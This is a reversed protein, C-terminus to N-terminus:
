ATRRKATRPASLVTHIKRWEFHWAEKKSGCRKGAPPVCPRGLKESTAPDQAWYPNHFGYTPANLFLWKYQETSFNGVGLDVAAGWGHMSTGPPAALNPKRQKIKVQASYTRLGGGSPALKTKFHAHFAAAMNNFDPIADKLLTVKITSHAGDAKAVISGPPSGNLFVVDTGYKGNYTIEKRGRGIGDGVVGGFDFAMASDICSQNTLTQENFYQDPKTITSVFRGIELNYGFQNRDLEVLVVEGVAPLVEGAPITYDQPSIFLTHMSILKFRLDPPVKKSVENACPDPLFNHPSNPGIIRAKFAFVGPKNDTTGLLKSDGSPLEPKPVGSFAGMQDSSYPIPPSLIIAPFKTKGAYADFDFINRMSQDVIQGAGTFMESFDFFGRSM